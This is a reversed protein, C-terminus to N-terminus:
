PQDAHLSNAAVGQEPLRIASGEKLLHNGMTVIRGEVLRRRDSDSGAIVELLNKARIGITVPVFAATMTGDPQDQSIFVGTRDDRTVIADDKLIIADTRTAFVIDIRAFAGPHLRGDANDIEIEFRGQRSADDIVPAKRIITGTFANEPSRPNGDQSVQVFVAAQQGVSLRAFDREVASVAVKLRASDIIAMVPANVALLAGPDVLREAVLREAAGEGKNWEARIITYDHRERAAALVAEQKRVQERAIVVKKEAITKATKANAVKAQANVLDTKAVTVSTQAIKLSARAIDVKSQAVDRDNEAMEVQTQAIDLNNRATALKAAAVKVNASQVDFNAQAADLEAQSSTEDRLGKQERELNQRALNLQAEAGALNAQESAITNRATTVDNQANRIKVLTSRLQVLESQVNVEANEVSVEAAEIQAKASEVGAEESRIEVSAKEVEAVASDVEAQAVLLAAQQEQIALLQERDDLRAVIAGHSVKDGLKFNVETVRGAVKPSVTFTSDAELSGTFSGIDQISGVTARELLVTIPAADRKAQTDERSLVAVLRLAVLLALAVACAVAILTFVKKM